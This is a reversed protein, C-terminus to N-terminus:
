GTVEDHHSSFGFCFVASAFGLAEIAAERLVNGFAARAVQRHLNVHIGGISRLAVPRAPSVARAADRGSEGVVVKVFLYM